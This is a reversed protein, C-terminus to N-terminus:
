VRFSLQKSTKKQGDQKAAVFSAEVTDIKERLTSFIKDKAEDTWDYSQTSSLHNLASLADIARSVRASALRSFDARKEEITKKPKKGNDDTSGSQNTSVSSAGNGDTGGASMDSTPEGEDSQGSGNESNEEGAADRMDYADQGSAERVRKAM